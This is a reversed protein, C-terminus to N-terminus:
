DEAALQLDAEAANDTPERSLESRTGVKFFAASVGFGHKLLWICIWFEGINSLTNDKLIDFSADFM